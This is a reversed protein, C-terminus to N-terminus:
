TFEKDDGICEKLMQDIDNMQSVHRQFVTNTEITGANSFASLQGASIPLAAHFQNEALSLLAM